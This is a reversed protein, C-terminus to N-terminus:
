VTFKGEAVPDKVLPDNMVSVWYRGKADVGGDNGRLEKEKKAPDPEDDWYRKIYKYKMTERNLLGVGHKGAFAIDRDNGQIDATNSVSIDLSAIARHSSPGEDLNVVHIKQKVIDVWRLTNSSKEWFPAEGLGM